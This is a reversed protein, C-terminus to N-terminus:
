YGDGVEVEIWAMANVRAEIAAIVQKAVQVLKLLTELEKATM